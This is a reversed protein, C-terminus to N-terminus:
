FIGSVENDWKYLLTFIRWVKVRHVFNFICFLMAITLGAIATFKKSWNLISSHATTINMFLASYMVSALIVLFICLQFVDLHTTVIEGNRIDGKITFCAYGFSKIALFFPIVAELANEKPFKLITNMISQTFGYLAKVWEVSLWISFSFSNFWNDNAQLGLLSEYTENSDLLIFSFVLRFSETWKQRLQISYLICISCFSILVLYLIILYKIHKIIFTEVTCHEYIAEMVELM